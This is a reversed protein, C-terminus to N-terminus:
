GEDQRLRRTLRSAPSLSRHGARFAREVQEAWRRANGDAAWGLAFATGGAAAATSGNDASEDGTSGSEAKPLPPKVAPPTESGRGENDPKPEAAPRPQGAGEAEADTRRESANDRFDPPVLRGQYVNVEQILREHDSNPEKLYIRYRGNPFRQFVEFLGRELLELPLQVDEGEQGAADVRRFFLQMGAHTAFDLETAPPEYAGTQQGGGSAQSLLLTPGSAERLAVPVIESKVVKITGFVGTGPVTLVDTVPLSQLVSGGEKFVVGNLSQGAVDARGDYAVTVRIPIPASPDLVNPNGKGQYSYDFRYTVGSEFGAFDGAEGVSLASPYTLLDEGSWIDYGDAWDITVQYNLVAPDHVTIEVIAHGQSDVNSGGQDVPVLRVSIPPPTQSVGDPSVAGTMQGTGTAVTVGPDLYIQGGAQVVIVGQEADTGNRQGGHTVIDQLITVDGGTQVLVSGEGVDTANTQFKVSDEEGNVGDGTISLNADFRGDVGQIHIADQGSGATADISLSDSPSLFTVTAGLDSGIQSYGDDAARNDQLTVTESGAIFEFRRERVPMQDLVEEVGTYTLTTAVGTSADTVSIGGDSGNAPVSAPTLEHVVQDATEAAPGRIVLLDNSGGESNTDIQSGGHFTVGGSPAFFGDAPHNIILVDDGELGSFTLSTVGSFPIVPGAVGDTTIQFTGSDSGTANVVMTDDFETGTEIIDTDITDPDENMITGTAPSGVVTINSSLVGVGLASVNSLAVTFQENLEYRIDRNVLVQFVQQEDQNGVFFLTGSQAQYDNNAVTAATGDSATGDATEARVRVGGQVPASLSVVFDFPTTSDLTGEYQTVGTITLTARDDNVILGDASATLIEVTNGSSDAGNNLTVRFAEDAEVMREDTVPVTVLCSTEGPLFTVTQSPFSGGFDAGDAASNGVGSVVWEVTTTGTTSGSRTVTFTLGSTAADGEAGVASHVEIALEVNQEIDDNQITGAATATGLTAGVPASLTVTFGEAPEVTSDGNVNVTLTQSTQGAAFTLTGGPLAGGAFDSGNAAEAGSGTVAYQVTVPMSSPNTLSVTFTYATLGTNGEAKNADLGVISVSTSDDNAITGTGALTSEGGQFTVARGGAALNELLLSLTEDLEVKADGATQVNITFGATSNATFLEVNSSALATYDGDAVTATGDVTSRDATVGVDVPNSITVSFALLGGELVTADGISIVAADDNAITGTGALTSEGGQFTVARGGAALNELLLSLTEDLEVKADGATQVNITFGATSNATFLEVNSSALATYDGDAVTATGDVTSRDATVGVDVPNSITVSFALLGGELVTADGISIVAADDNVITGTGALTSEGGQFTVARGGAALNELLLSLTEALEVKADGATAITITKEENATGTFSLTGSAPSYDNDETKATGNTTAYSVDVGGQVAASLKVTFVLDEGETVSVDAITLTASDNNTIRGTAPSGSTTVDAVTVGNLTVTLTETLEVKADATTAVTITQQEGAVGAFNLTGNSATYDNDTLTASGDATAYSVNVGDQVDASLTVTFVLNGGEAVPTGRITLSASDNNTITGIAPSGSTTVGAVTVGSLTVTLTENSEVKADDGTAVTITRQEGATGTFNLTGSASEYDNDELTATGNWTAYDVSLGGPVDASLTVTFVLDGGESVSADEITLTAIDDNQITLTATRNTVGAQGGHDFNTFTLLITEDAEFTAEGLIEIPVTKSTENPAFHLSIPGATFDSGATAGNIAGSQLVVDVDSEANTKGSRIVTVVATTATTDGENVAFTAASFDYIPNTPERPSTLVPDRSSFAVASFGYAPVGVISVSDPVTRTTEASGAAVGAASVSDTEAGPISVETSVPSDAWGGAFGVPQFASGGLSCDVSLVRRDELRALTPQFNLQQCLTRRAERLHKRRLRDTYSRLLKIWDKFPM